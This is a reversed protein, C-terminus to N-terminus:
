KVLKMTVTQKMKQSIEQGMASVAMELDQKMNTEVLRGAANDFLATGTAEQSKLTIKAPANPDAELTIKPKLTIKELQKGDKAVPGDYTNTSEVKMTGGPSKSEFKQDWTAGKSIPKAPLLLGSQDMMQKLGEESLMQGLGPTGALGKAAQALKEPVKVDSIKGQADMSMSIEAGVLASFLPGMIKGVPGEPEKGEKSDYELKATPGEMNFRIRDFTQTIKAKGSQDVSAVNWTVDFTQGMDVKFERGMVNMAMDGKMQLVYNLKEGQKFKYRLTTQAAASQASAFLIALGLLALAASRIRQHSM